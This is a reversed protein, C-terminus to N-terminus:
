NAGIEVRSGQEASTEGLWQFLQQLSEACGDEIGVNLSGSDWAGTARCGHKRAQDCLLIAFHELLLRAVPDDGGALVVV